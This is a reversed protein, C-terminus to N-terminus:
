HAHGGAFANGSLSALRVQYAGQVVVMEGVEVGAVVHAMRGDTAGLTLVRREFTEGGVQIFVVPVGNDDLVAQRPIAVGTAADEVPVAARAMQGFTFPGSRVEYTVTVTRTRPDILAGSSIRRSTERVRSSGELTFTAPLDTLEPVHTAPVHVRLWAATPDVVTFLPVGATVRGGPVFDRTAIVGDIPSTISLRYGDDSRGGMADLEARAIDLDHRADELRRRPIAGVQHLRDAREVERELRGVRGLAEAFGGDQTTPALVALTQGRRVRAGVSPADRNLEVPAIGDVPATLRVLAQDPPVIEGPADVTRQVTQNTAAVVGFPIVWQQEKLFAIGGGEDEQPDSLPAEALSPYVTVSRLVHRSTTQPSALSLVVEYQGPQEVVPDLLFIGDRAPEPVLFEGMTQGNRSFHVTLTGSRIPQFDERDTLHIAWNGTPTGAVVSPYELFLETSDNWQTVVVSTIEPGDTVPTAPGCAGAAVLALTPTWGGLFVNRTSPTPRASTPNRPRSM